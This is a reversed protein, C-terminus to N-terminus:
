AAKLHGDAHVKPRGMRAVLDTLPVGLYRATCLQRDATDTVVLRGECIELLYGKDRLAEALGPWDQATEFVPALTMRLLCATECDVATEKGAALWNLPVAVPQDANEYTDRM